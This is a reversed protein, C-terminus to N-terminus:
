RQAKFCGYCGQDGRLRSVVTVLRIVESGEALNVVAVVRIM